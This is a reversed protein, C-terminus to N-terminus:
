RKANYGKDRMCKQFNESDHLAREDEQTLVPAAGPTVPPSVRLGQRPSSRAQERCQDTDSM